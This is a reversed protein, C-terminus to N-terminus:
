GDVTAIMDFCKKTEPAFILMNLNNNLVALIVDDITAGEPQSTVEHFSADTFIIVTRDASSSYRWKEPDLTTSDKETEEMEAITILADLLSEPEEGGGDAELSDLQKEIISMDNEFPNSEIWKDGDHTIDRYGVIKGRWDKVPNSNNADETTLTIFFQKINEKLHDICPQMSGTADILFVIDAVGKVRDQDAM